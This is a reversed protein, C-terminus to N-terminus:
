YDFKKIKKNILDIRDKVGSIHNRLKVIEEQKILSPDLPVKLELVEDINIRAHRKGSQLLRYMEKLEPMSLIYAGVIPDLDNLCDLGNWEKTGIANQPPNPLIKGLYAELKSFIIDAKDLENKDSNIETVYEPVTCLFGTGGEVAELDILKKEEDLEGKKICNLEVKCFLNSLPIEKKSNSLRILGFIANTGDQVQSYLETKRNLDEKIKCFNIQKLDFGISIDKLEKYSIRPHEKGSQLYRYTECMIDSNLFAAIEINHNEIHCNIGFWESSGIANEPPNPLAKGLYTRLRPMIISANGLYVKESNISDVYKVNENISLSNSSVCDLDVLQLTSDLEGKKVKDLPFFDLYDSLPFTDKGIGVKGRKKDWLWRYKPDFRLTTRKLIDGVTSTFGYRLSESFEETLEYNYLISEFDNERDLDSLGKRRKYGISEPEAFFIREKLIEYKDLIANLKDNNKETEAHLVKIENNLIDTEKTSRKEAYVICTKVSTYPQFASYPLSIIAKIRFRTLLFLRTKRESATDCVSEPLVCCFKGTSPKLLQYWREIFLDESQGIEGSFASKIEKKDDDTLKISFPPNSLVLDFKENVQENSGTKELFSGPRDEIYYKKFPLLGSAIWTNMSGDGHLIMNVKAALGLDYNNEIGYLSKQAWANKAQSPFLTAHAERTRENLTNKYEDVGLSDTVCQMYRILFTGVGCSPDIVYPLRHVGRGDPKQEFIEKAYDTGGCLKIMFDVLKVPTFFQGRTQTFGHSVIEEFFGGLIDGDFDNKTVSFGELATVVYAVKSSKIRSKDFAVNQSAETALYSEEAEKYLHNMREVVSNASEAVSGVYKRQFKYEEGPSTEKEDYIKCLLLKTLIAFVENSNTGGGGWIVDHLDEVLYAFFTENVATSLPMHMNTENSIYAYSRRIREGYIQPIMNGNPQGAEDWEEYTKFENTSIVISKETLRIGCDQITTYVLYKPTNNELRSLQFLQGKIYKTDKTYMQPTKCEIFLFPFGDRDHLLIDVRGGKVDKLPRGPADYMKEFIINSTDIPYQYEDCLRLVLLARVFEEDNLDTTTGNFGPVNDPVSIYQPNYTIKGKKKFADYSIDLILKDYMSHQKIEDLYKQANFEEKM